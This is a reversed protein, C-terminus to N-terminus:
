RSNPNLAVMQPPTVTSRAGSTYGTWAGDSFRGSYDFVKSDVSATQTIGENFKYYVGLNTNANDTNSGGGVQTFWHRGIQQSNRKTKWCRLINGLFFKTSWKQKTLREM